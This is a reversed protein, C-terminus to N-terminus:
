TREGDKAEQRYWAVTKALGEELSVRPMNALMGTLKPVVVTATTCPADPIISISCKVAKGILEALDGIATEDPSGVDYRSVGPSGFKFLKYLQAACDDIYLFARRDRGSGQVRIPAFYATDSLGLMENALQPIVHDNGMDPGYANFVRAILIRRYSERHSEAWQETVLKGTGYPTGNGARPSSILMLDDVNHLECARLVNDIGKVAVDMIECPEASVPAYAMHIVSDCGHVARDVAAPDRIDGFYADYPVKHLRRPWGQCRDLVRVKNGAALLGQVLPAGIFSTGGTVLITSM